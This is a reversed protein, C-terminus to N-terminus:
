CRIKTNEIGSHAENLAKQQLPPYSKDIEHIFVMNLHKQIIDVQEPSLGGIPNSIEFCGQLWYCFEVAKM